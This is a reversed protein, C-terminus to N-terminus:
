DWKDIRKIVSEATEENDNSDGNEAKTEAQKQKQEQMELVLATERLEQLALDFVHQARDFQWCHRCSFLVNYLLENVM